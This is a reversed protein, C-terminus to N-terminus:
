KPPSGRAGDRGAPEGTRRPPIRWVEDPKVSRELVYGKDNVLRGDVTIGTVARFSARDLHILVSDPRASMLPRGVLDPEVWMRNAHPRLTWLLIGPDVGGRRAATEARDDTALWLPLHATDFPTVRGSSFDRWHAILTLRVTQLPLVWTVQREVPNSRLLSIFVNLGIVVGLFLVGAVLAIWCLRRKWMPAGMRQDRTAFRTAGGVLATGAQAALREPAAADGIGDGASGGHGLPLRV